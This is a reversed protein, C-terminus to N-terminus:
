LENAISQNINIYYSYPDHNNVLPMHLKESSKGFNSSNAQEKENEIGM